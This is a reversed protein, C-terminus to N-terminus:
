CTLHFLGAVKKGQESLANFLNIADPTEAIMLHIGKEEASNRAQSSVKAVGSQGTGIVIYEPKPKSLIEIEDKTITHSRPREKISTDAFIYVDNDYQQSDIVIRGFSTGDIKM